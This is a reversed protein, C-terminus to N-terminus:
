SYEVSLLVTTVATMVPNWIQSAENGRHCVRETNLLHQWQAPAAQPTNSQFFMSEDPHPQLLPTPSPNQGPFLDMTTIHILNTM